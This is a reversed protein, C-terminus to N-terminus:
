ILMREKADGFKTYSYSPLICIQYQRAKCCKLRTVPIYTLKTSGKMDARCKKNQDAELLANKIM